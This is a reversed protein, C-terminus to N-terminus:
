CERPRSWAAPMTLSYSSFALVPCAARRGSATRRGRCTSSRAPRHGRVATDAPSWPASRDPRAGSEFVRPPVTVPLATGDGVLHALASEESSVYRDPGDVIFIQVPDNGGRAALAADLDVLARSGRHAAIHVTAAGVSQAALVAGDIVLHPNRHILVADKSAAPEGEMANVVVVPDKRAKHAAAVVAHMKRGTPFWGGGRGALGSREIEAVDELTPVRLGTHGEILAIESETPTLLDVWVTGAPPATEGTAQGPHFTLM